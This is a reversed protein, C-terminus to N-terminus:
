QWTVKFWFAADADTFRYVIRWRWPNKLTHRRWAYSGAGNERLWACREAFAGIHGDEMEVAHPAQEDTLTKDYTTGTM